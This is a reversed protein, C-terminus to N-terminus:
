RYVRWKYAGFMGFCLAELRTYLLLRPGITQVKAVDRSTRTQDTSIGSSSANLANSASLGPIQDYSLDVVAAKLFFATFNCIQVWKKHWKQSFYPMNFMFSSMFGCIFDSVM